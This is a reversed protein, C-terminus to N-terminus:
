PLAFIQSLGGVLAFAGVAPLLIQDCILAGMLDKRLRQSVVVRAIASIAAYLLGFVAHFAIGLFIAPPVDIILWPDIWRPPIGARRQARRILSYGFILLIYLASIACSLQITEKQTM